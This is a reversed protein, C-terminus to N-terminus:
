VRAFSDATGHRMTSQGVITRCKAQQQHVVVPRPLFHALLDLLLFDITGLQGTAVWDCACRGSGTM